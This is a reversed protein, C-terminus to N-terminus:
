PLKRYVAPRIYKFRTADRNLSESHGIFLYGGEELLDYFKEVLRDKTKQDFYIMVNRCFIVHMKQRFPFVEEMLNFRRFIVEQKLADSVMVSQDDLKRFYKLAWARPLPAVREQSYIGQRAVELAAQSIDTALVATEWPPQFGGFYDRLIMALTYPEEGTSSAACWVRLDRSKVSAKLFPLVTERFYEFHDPERMFFTHNTSIKDILVAVAKGTTDRMLYDYYESFSGMGLDSLLKHLRGTLLTHKEKKLQIGYHRHIFGALKEFEPETIQIM